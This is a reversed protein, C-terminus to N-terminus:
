LEINIQNIHNEIYATMDLFQNITSQDQISGTIDFLDIEQQKLFNKVLEMGNNWEKKKKHRFANDGSIDDLLHM